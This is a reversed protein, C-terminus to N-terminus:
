SSTARTTTTKGKKAKKKTKIGAEDEAEILEDGSVVAVLKIHVEMYLRDDKADGHLWQKTTMDPFKTWSWMKNLGRIQPLVFIEIEWNHLKGKLYAVLSHGNAAIDEHMIHKHLDQFSETPKMECQRNTLEPLQLEIGTKNIFNLVCHIIKSSKSKDLVPPAGSVAYAPAVPLKKLRITQRTANGDKRREMDGGQADEVSDSEIGYGGQVKFRGGQNDIDEVWVRGGAIKRMLANRDLRSGKVANVFSADPQWKDEDINFATCTEMVRGYQVGGITFADAIFFGVAHSTSSASTPVCAFVVCVRDIEHKSLKKSAISGIRFYHRASSTTNDHVMKILTTLVGTDEDNSQQQEQENGQRRDEENNNNDYDSADDDEGAQVIQEFLASVANNDYDSADKYEGAEVVHAILPFVAAEM